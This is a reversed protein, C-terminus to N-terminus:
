APPSGKPAFSLLSVSPTLPVVQFVLRVSVQDFALSGEAAPTPPSFRERTQMM